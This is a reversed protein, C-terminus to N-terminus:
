AEEEEGLDTYDKGNLDEIEDTGVGTIDNDPMDDDFSGKGGQRVPLSIKPAEQLQKAPSPAAPAAKPAPAADESDPTDDSETPPHVMQSEPVYDEGEGAARLRSQGPRKAPARAAPKKGSPKGVGKGHLFKFALIAGIVFPIM